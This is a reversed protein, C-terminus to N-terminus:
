EELCSHSLQNEGVTGENLLRCGECENTEDNSEASSEASTVASTEATYLEPLDWYEDCAECGRENGNKMIRTVCGNCQTPM